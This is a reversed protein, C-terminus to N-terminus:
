SADTAHPPLCLSFRHQVRASGSRPGVDMRVKPSDGAERAYPSIRLHPGPLARSRRSDAATASAPQRKDGMSNCLGLRPVTRLSARGAQPTVGIAGADGIPWWTPCVGGDALVFWRLGCASSLSPRRPVVESGGVRPRAGRLLRSVGKAAFAPVKKPRGGHSLLPM